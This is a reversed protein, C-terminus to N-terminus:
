RGFIMRLLGGVVHGTNWPLGTVSRRPKDDKTPKNSNNEKM